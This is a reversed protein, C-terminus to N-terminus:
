GIQPCGIVMDISQNNDELCENVLGLGAADQDVLAHVTFPGKPDGPPTWDLTVTQLAGPLLEASTTVTGIVEYGLGSQNYFTVSLGAPAGAAPAAGAAAAGALDSLFHPPM